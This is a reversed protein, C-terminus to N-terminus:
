RNVFAQILERVHFLAKSFAGRECFAAKRLYCVVVSDQKPGALMQPSCSGGGVSYPGEFLGGVVRFTTIEGWLHYVPPRM